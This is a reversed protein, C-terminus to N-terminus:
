ALASTVESPDLAGSRLIVVAGEASVAVVTSAVGGRLPGGDLVLALSDGVQEVLEAATMPDPGGSVNASTLAIPGLRASLQRPVPHDPMRFGLTGTPGLLPAPLDVGAEARPSLVLTLPGPWFRDVLRRAVPPLDALAEVQDISDVALAIGKDGPRRKAALLAALSWANPLVTLGYLTDTPIAVIGGAWLTEIASEVSDRDAAPLIM